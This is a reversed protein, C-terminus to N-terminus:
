VYSDILEILTEYTMLSFFCNKKKKKQRRQGGRDAISSLFKEFRGIGSVTCSLLTTRHFPFHIVWQHSWLFMLSSTLSRTEDNDDIASCAAVLVLPTTLFSLLLFIQLFFRAFFLSLFSVPVSFLTFSLSFLFLLGRRGEKHTHTYTHRCGLHLRTISFAFLCCETRQKLVSRRKKSLSFTVATTINRQQSQM